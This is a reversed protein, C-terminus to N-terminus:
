IKLPESARPEIREAPLPAVSGNTRGLGVLVQSLKAPDHRLPNIDSIVDAGVIKVGDYIAIQGDDLVAQVGLDPSIVEASARNSNVVAYDLNGRGLYEVVARIHDTATFHDTEGRQTAVNCAYVTTGRSWRIADVVGSVLLNPIVSTYLSGPGLIILDANVIAELAPEYAAPNEPQLYVKRIPAKDTSISSEGHVTTGDVLEACLDINALTSPM